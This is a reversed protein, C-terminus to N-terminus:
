LVKLNAGKGDATDGLKDPRSRDSTLIVQGSCDDTNMLADLLYIFTFTFDQTTRQTLRSRQARSRARRASQPYPLHGYTIGPESYISYCSPVNSAERRKTGALKGGETEKSEETKGEVFKTDLHEGSIQWEGDKTEHEAFAKSGLM